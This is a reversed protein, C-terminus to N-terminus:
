GGATDVLAWAVIRRGCGGGQGVVELSPMSPVRVKVRGEAIVDLNETVIGPAIAFGPHLADDGARELKEFLADAAM